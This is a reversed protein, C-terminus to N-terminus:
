GAAPLHERFLALTREFSRTSAQEHYTPHDPWTYAHDAGSFVERTVHALGDVADYFPQNVSIPQIQDADGVGIFLPQVLAAATLHPSDPKDDALFSPHWMAGVVFREPARMLARFVGRAGLCFGILGIPEDPRAGVADLGADLDARIGEDTLSRVMAGMRENVSPDAAREHPEFGILRGHRHYLDPVVVDYGEAALKASFERTATRIGPGDHVVLVKPWSGDAAPRTRLVAMEGDPTPADIIEANVDM